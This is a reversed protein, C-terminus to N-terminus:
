KKGIRLPFVLTANPVPTCVHARGIQGRGTGLVDRHYIAFMAAMVAYFGAFSDALAFQPLIPPGDAEGTMEAFGSMGEMLTGFGPQSSYPGTQGYGTVRIM